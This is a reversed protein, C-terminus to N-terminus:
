FGCPWGQVFDCISSGVPCGEVIECYQPEIGTKLGQIKGSEMGTCEEVHVKLDKTRTRFQTALRLYLKRSARGEPISIQIENALEPQLHPLGRFYWRMCEPFDGCM